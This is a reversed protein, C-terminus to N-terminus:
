AWTYETEPHVTGEYAVAISNDSKVKGSDWVKQGGMSVVIRYDEQITGPKDSTLIWSFVPKVEPNVGLPNELGNTRMDTIRIGAWSLAPVLTLIWLLLRHKM